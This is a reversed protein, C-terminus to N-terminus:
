VMPPQKGKPKRCLDSYTESSESNQKGKQTDDEEKVFAEQRHSIYACKKRKILIHIKM